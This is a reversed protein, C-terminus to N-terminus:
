KSKKYPKLFSKVPSLSFFNLNKRLSVPSFEPSNSPEPTKQIEPLHIRIKSQILWNKSLKNEQEIANKRVKEKVIWSRNLKNLNMKAEKLSKIKERIKGIKRLNEELSQVRESALIMKVRVDSNTGRQLVHGEFKCKRVSEARKIKEIMIKEKASVFSM